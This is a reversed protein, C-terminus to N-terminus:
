FNEWMNGAANAVKRPQSPSEELAWDDEPDIAPSVPSAHDPSAYGTNAAFANAVRTDGDDIKFHAVLRSLKSADSNLIHSAATAQEVMAANQQTVQDLQTVGINIEALGTSQNVSGVAMESVLHSITGVRDVITNLAVGAKSVLVVGREVQKSSDDILAKIETAADSSRQALIRVESAVVAFGRGADGARAAEVGANLALLNTQFSIDDIVGIIQSIYRASGEIETMASVADQVVKGSEEAEQKAENVISEVSRAGEAASKVSTTMEELAAATQELTAAQSETRRSLDDSSQSIETAGNRISESSGVVEHVTTKLSELTQNFDDRLKVYGDSMDDHIRVTLDGKSLRELGDGIATVAATQEEQRAQREIEVAKSMEDKEVLGNRFVSLAQAIRYIEDSARDFGTVPSLDGAALHETTESIKALPRTILLKTLLLSLVLVAASVGLLIEMQQKAGLVDATVAGAMDSIASQSDGNLSASRQAIQSVAQAAAQSTEVTKAQARITAIRSAALGTDFDAQATIGHISETLLGHQFSVYEGLSKAATTLPDAAIQVQEVGDASVVRLAAVQLSNILTNMELLQNLVGVENDLLSQVTDSNTSSSEEAAMTLEFITDDIAVILANASADRAILVEKRLAKQESRSAVLMQEFVKFAARITKAGEASVGLPELNELFPVLREASGTAAATMSKKTPVDRVQGLGLSMGALLNIDAQAELLSQLASFQVDVLSTLTNEISAITDEGGVTLNFYAIDAADLLHFQLKRSHTQLAIIQANIQADSVFVSERAKLLETLSQAANTALTEFEPQLTDPLNGIGQQLRNAADEAMMRGQKLGASDGALLIETMSGRTLGAAETLVASNELQPLMDRTLTSMDQSVRAFVMSVLVAVVASAAGMALLILTIKAGISSFPRYGRKQPPSDQATM